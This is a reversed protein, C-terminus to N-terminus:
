KGGQIKNKKNNRSKRVIDRVIYIAMEIFLTGFVGVAVANVHM